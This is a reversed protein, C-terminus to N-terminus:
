TISLVVVAYGTDYITISKFSVLGKFGRPNKQMGADMDELM